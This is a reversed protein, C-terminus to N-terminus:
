IRINPLAAATFIGKLTSLPLVYHPNGDYREREQTANNQEACTRRVGLAARTALVCVPPAHFAGRSRGRCLRRHSFAWAASIHSAADLLGATDHWDVMAFWCEVNLGGSVLPEYRRGHSPPTNRSICRGLAGARSLQTRGWAGRRPKKKNEAYLRKFLSTLRDCRFRRALRM